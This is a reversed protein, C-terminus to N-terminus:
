ELLGMMKLIRKVSMLAVAKPLRGSRIEEAADYGAERPGNDGLMRVMVPMKVDSGALIEETLSSYVEWDTMAVGDFGWEGRLIGQIAEFNASSRVGNVKNYSTMLAKPHAKKVCIEFGRLYIERLARESVQSDSEKRNTEKNNCCFHKITAVIREGQVGKVCAAAFEGSVLPDESYYEFNRGCLPSRHINLAPALWIGVNNEKAELAVAKGIRRCLNLNWSQAITAACPFYTTELDGRGLPIRVGAPGDATPIYPVKKKEDRVPFLGISGTYSANISPHGYLFQAIEDVSLQSLFADLRNQELADELALAQEPAKERLRIAKPKHAQPARKPLTEYKGNALLRKELGDPAMYSHCRRVVRDEKLSFALAKENERVNVGWFVQYEGKELVFASKEIKGLDDFSAFSRLDFSLSLVCGEGPALERTKRFACLQMKPKGLKGQPASLYCQVVEKGRFAGINKVEVKMKISNKEQKASLLKRSFETYNLGFGFPYVVKEPCFTEFYRYGVFIDETYPVVDPSALFSATTPYDEIKDAFTDQLRGSPYAKGLLIEALSEGARVGGFQPLLVASVEKKEAFFGTEMMGCINLVVVVKEFDRGLRDIMEKEQEFLAFGGEGGIRDYAEGSYRTLIYVAIGGFAKAKQYLAEPIQYDPHMVTRQWKAFSTAEPYKARVEKYEAEKKERYFDVLPRFLSVEGKQEAKLLADTLPVSEKCHVVGSGGGGLQFDGAGRGFLVLKPCGKLPLTGDNKLLVTGETAVLKALMQHEHSASIKKGGRGLPAVPQYIYRGFRDLMM